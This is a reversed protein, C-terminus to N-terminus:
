LTIVIPVFELPYCFPTSTSHNSRSTLELGPKALSEMDAYSHIGTKFSFSSLSLLLIHKKWQRRKYMM